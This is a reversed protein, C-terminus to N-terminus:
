FFLIFFYTKHILFSKSNCSIKKPYDNVKNKRVFLTLYYYLKIIYYMYTCIYTRIYTCVYHTCLFDLIFVIVAFKCIIIFYQILTTLLSM